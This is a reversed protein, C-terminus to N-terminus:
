ADTSYPMADLMTRLQKRQRHVIQKLFNKAERRGKTTTLDYRNLEDKWESEGFVRLLEDLVTAEILEDEDHDLIEAMRKDHEHQEPLADKIEQYRDIIWLDRAPNQPHTDRQGIVFARHFETQLNKAQVKPDSFRSCVAIVLNDGFFPFQFVSGAFWSPLPPPTRLRGNLVIETIVNTFIEVGLRHFGSEIFAGRLAKSMITTAIEKEFTLDDDGERMWAAFDTEILEPCYVYKLFTLLDTWEHSEAFAQVTRSVTSRPVARNQDLEKEDLPDVLDLEDRVAEILDIACPERMMEGAMASLWHINQGPTDVPMAPNPKAIQPDPRSRPDCSACNSVPLGTAEAHTRAALYTPFPGHWKRGNADEQDQNGSARVCYRCHSSHINAKHRNPNEYVYYSM